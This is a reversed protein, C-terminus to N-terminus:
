RGGAGHGGRLHPPVHTTTQSLRWKQLCRRITGDSLDPATTQTSGNSASILAPLQQLTLSNYVSCLIIFHVWRVALQEHSKSAPSAPPAQGRPTHGSQITPGTPPYKSIDPPVILATLCTSSRIVLGRRADGGSAGIPIFSAKEHPSWSALLGGGPNGATLVM